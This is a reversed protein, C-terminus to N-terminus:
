QGLDRQVDFPDAIGYLEGYIRNLIWRLADPERDVHRGNPLTAHEARLGDFVRRYAVAEPMSMRLDLRRGVYGDTVAVPLELTVIQEGTKAKTSKSKTKAM